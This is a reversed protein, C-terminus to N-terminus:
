RPTFDAFHDECLLGLIRAREDGGIRRPHSRMRILGSTAEARANGTGPRGRSGSRTAHPIKGLESHHADVLTM